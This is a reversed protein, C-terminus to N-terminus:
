FQNKIRNVSLVADIKKKDWNLLSIIKKYMDPDDEYMLLKEPDKEVSRALYSLDFRKDSDRGMMIDKPRVFLKELMEEVNYCNLNSESHYGDAGPKVKFGHWFEYDGYIGETSDFARDMLDEINKFEITDDVFALDGNVIQAFDYFTDYIGAVTYNMTDGNSSGSNFSLVFGMPGNIDVSENLLYSEYPTLNNM